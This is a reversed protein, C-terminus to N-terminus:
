SWIMDTVPLTGASDTIGSSIAGGGSLSSAGPTGAGFPNNTKALYASAGLISGLQNFTTSQANSATQLEQAPSSAAQLGSLSALLQEEPQLESTAYGQGYQELAIGLNGSDYFGSSAGSRQLAQLGQNYQFEYGPTSTISSPNALLQQLQNEYSQQEAFTTASQSQGQSAIGASQSEEYAGLGVSAVAAGAIVTMGSM